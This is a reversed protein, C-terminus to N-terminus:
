LTLPDSKPGVGNLWNVCAVQYVYTGTDGVTSDTCAMAPPTVPDPQDGDEWRQFGKENTFLTQPANPYQLTMLASGNRYMVFTKIGTELDADSDWKLAIRKNAYTGTLNDPAPPPISDKIIGTAMYEKWKEALYQNPFWCTRLRSGTFASAPFINRTATDGLWANSTDMDRLESAGAQAPLRLGLCVDIWDIAIMRLNWPAHGMMNSPQNSPNYVWNVFPNIAHAWLAGINRAHQFITDNYCMDLVGNHHLVPVRLAASSQSIDFGCAEIIGAAVRDPHKGIMSTSWYAGASHGWLVWPVTSIEPHGTRRALTDLAALFSIESGNEILYYNKCTEPNSAGTPGSIFKPAMFVAHWKKALSEWQMDGMMQVADGERTCGHLHNIICRVTGVSDPVWCYYTPDAYMNLQKPLTFQYVTGKPGAGMAPFALPVVISSLAGALLWARLFLCSTKMLEGWERLNTFADM